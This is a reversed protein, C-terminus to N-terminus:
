VLSTSIIFGREMFILCFVKRISSIGWIAYYVVIPFNSKPPSRSLPSPQTMATYPLGKEDGMSM